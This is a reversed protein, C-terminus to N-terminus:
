TRTGGNGVAPSGHVTPRIIIDGLQVDAPCAVLRAVVDAVDESRLYRAPSYPVGEQTCLWQQMPTATRGPLVTVVRVGAAAVEDRLSDALARLAHKSAAYLGLRARARLGAVSNIFVIQGQAAILLPLLARTLALPARVNVRYIQDLQEVPSEALSGFSLTGAAHVLLDVGTAGRSSCEAVKELGDDCSLDARCVIPSAGRQEVDRAAAALRPQDRGVLVLTRGPEALATAIARGIGSSAGTVVVYGISM